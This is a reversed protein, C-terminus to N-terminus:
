RDDSREERLSTALAERVAPWEGALAVAVRADDRGEPREGLWRCFRDAEIYFHTHGRPQAQWYLTVLGPLREGLAHLTARLNIALPTIRNMRYVSCAAQMGSHRALAVLRRREREDLVYRGSLVAEDERVANCWAPSAVIDAMAQQFDSLM